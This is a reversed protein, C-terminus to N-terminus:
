GSLNMEAHCEVREEDAYQYDLPRTRSRDSAGQIAEFSHHRGAPKISVDTQHRDSRWRLHDFRRSPLILAFESYIGRPLLGVTRERERSLQPIGPEACCFSVIEEFQFTLM